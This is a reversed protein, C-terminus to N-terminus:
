SVLTLTNETHAALAGKVFAPQLDEREAIMENNTGIRFKM